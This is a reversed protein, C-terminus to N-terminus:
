RSGLQYILKRDHEETVRMYAGVVQDHQGRTLPDPWNWFTKRCVGLENCLKTKNGFMSVAEDKTM